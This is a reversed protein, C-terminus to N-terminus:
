KSEEVGIDQRYFALEKQLRRVARFLLSKVTGEAVNLVRAIEKLPLDQYHRLVFVAREKPALKTIASEIHNQMLRSEAAREPNEAFGAASFPDDRSTEASFDDVLNMQTVAKKRRKNLCSNLTIRYLWSSLRAEGRFTDLARYAKVFVEQALDEADHQNGTLDYALFYVRRQYHEVISRFATGDGSQARQILEREDIAM